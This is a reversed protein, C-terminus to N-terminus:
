VLLVIGHLSPFAHVAPSVHPPPTHAPAAITHSSPFAHVVSV